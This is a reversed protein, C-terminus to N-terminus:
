TSQFAPVIVRARLLVSSLFPCNVVYLSQASVKARRWFYRAVCPLSTNNFVFPLGSTCSDIRGSPNMERVSLMLDAYTRNHLLSLIALLGNFRKRFVDGVM